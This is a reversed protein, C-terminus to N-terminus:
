NLKNDAALRKLLRVDNRSDVLAPSGPALQMVSVVLTKHDATKDLGIIPYRSSLSSIPNWLYGYYSVTGDVVVAFPKGALPISTSLENLTNAAEDNVQFTYTNSTYGEIQSYNIFPSEELRVTAPDVAAPDPGLNAPATLLYFAVGSKQDLPSPPTPQLNASHCAMVLSTLCGLLYLYSRM